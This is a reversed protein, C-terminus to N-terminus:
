KIPPNGRFCILVLGPNFLVKLLSEENLMRRLGSSSKMQTHSVPGIHKFSFRSVRLKQCVTPRGEVIKRASALMLGMGIDATANDVVHPTNCVKVGFSNIMPIDLHNVGVGGNVVVKLNPLSQMLGRDVKLTVGWVFVAKVQESLNKQDLLFTEYPIITFHKEVVPAFCKYIGGHAGFTTALICPKEM